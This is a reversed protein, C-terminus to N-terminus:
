RSLVDLYRPNKFFEIELRLRFDHHEVRWLTELLLDRQERAHVHSAIQPRPLNRKREGKHSGLGFYIPDGYGHAFTRVAVCHNPKRVRFAAGLLVGAIEIAIRPPGRKASRPKLRHTLDRNVRIPGCKSKTSCRKYFGHGTVCTARNRRKSFRANGLALRFAASRIL